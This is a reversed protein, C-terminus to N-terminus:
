GREVRVREIKRGSMTTITFRLNEYPIVEGARPIRQILYLL